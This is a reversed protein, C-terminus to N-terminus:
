QFIREPKAPAQQLCNRLFRLPGLITNFVVPCRSMQVLYKVECTVDIGSLQNCIVKCRGVDCSWLLLM